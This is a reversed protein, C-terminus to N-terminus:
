PNNPYQQGEEARKNVAVIGVSVLMLAGIMKVSFHDEPLLIVSLISGAVPIMFRYIAIEGAKSYKLLSNWLSFALASLVASYILLILFTPTYTLETLNVRPLGIILLLSSGLLMQWATLLFPHIEKTLHKTLITGFAGSLGALILFGEGLFSLNLSFGQGWNILLIGSFGTILGLSKRWNLKDNKYFIHALIVVFFTGISNLIAGKMGSTHALGIYFFFYQLTTQLIGLLLLPLLQQKNIRLPHKIVLVLLLFLLLSALFFRVGALAIKEVLDDPALQLETYSIKLVPFASGWLICCFLAIIIIYFPKTFIDKWNM